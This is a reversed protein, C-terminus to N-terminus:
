SFYEAIEKWVDIEQRCNKNIIEVYLKQEDNLQQAQELITNSQNQAIEMSALSKRIFNRELYSQGTDDVQSLIEIVKEGENQEILESLSIWSKWPTDCCDFIVQLAQRHVDNTGGLVSARLISSFGKISTLLTLGVHSSGTIFLPSRNENTSM